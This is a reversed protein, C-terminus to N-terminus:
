RATGATSLPTLVAALAREVAGPALGSLFVLAQWREEPSLRRLREIPVAAPVARVGPGAGPLVAAPGPSNAIARARAHVRATMAAAQEGTVMGRAAMRAIEKLDEASQRGLVAAGSV